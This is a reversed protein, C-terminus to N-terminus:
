QNTQTTSKNTQTLAFVEVDFIATGTPSVPVNDASWTGNTQVTADIGNVQVGVNPNTVTGHVNVRPKNLQNGALPEMTVTVKSRIININTCTINGAADTAIVSLHNTGESIPLDKVWIQENQEVIADRSQTLGKANAIKAQVTTTVDDIKGHLTFKNGMISTNNQPWYVTLVPPNTAHSYDLIYTKRLIYKRGAEDTVHITVVNRGKSMPVNYCQFFNNTFTFKKRDFGGVGATYAVQNTAKGQANVLDYTVTRIQTPFCGVIQIKPRIVVKSTPNTIIIPSHQCGALLLCSVIPLIIKLLTIKKKM